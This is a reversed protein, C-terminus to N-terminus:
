SKFINCELNNGKKNISIKYGGKSCLANIYCERCNRINIQSSKGDSLIQFSETNLRFDESNSTIKIVDNNKDNGYFFTIKGNSYMQETIIMTLCLAAKALLSDLYIVGGEFNLDLELKDNVSLFDKLLKILYVASMQDDGDSSGYVGRFFKIKKVLNNSEDVALAKAEERITKKNAEILSLCNDVTGVSGALDHLLRANLMQLLQLDDIM